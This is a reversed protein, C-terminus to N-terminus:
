PEFFGIAGLMLGGVMFSAPKRLGEIGYVDLPGPIGPVFGAPIWLLIGAAVIIGAVGIVRRLRKLTSPECPLQQPKL